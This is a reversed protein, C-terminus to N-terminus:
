EGRARFRKGAGNHGLLAFISGQPITLSMAELAHTKGYSKALGIVEIAPNMAPSANM